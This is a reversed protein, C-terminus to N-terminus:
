VSIQRMGHGDKEILTFVIGYGGLYYTEYIAALHTKNLELLASYQFDSKTLVKSAQWSRGGDHSVHLVGNERRSQSAANLHYLVTGGDTALISGQCTPDPLDLAQHAGLFSEGGDESFAIIRYGGKNADRASLVIIDDSALAIDCENPDLSSEPAFASMRFHWPLRAGVRWTAGDDDSLLLSAGTDSSNAKQGCCWNYWGSVVLRGNSMRVGSGPGGSFMRVGAAALADTQEWHPGSWSAGAPDSRLFGSPAKALSHDGTVIHLIISGDAAKVVSGLNVGDYSSANSPDRFLWTINSWTRGHDQSRRMAVAKPGGDSCSHLRAEAFALIDGNDASTMVPIRYCSVPEPAGAGSGGFPFVAGSSDCGPAGPTLCCRQVAALSANHSCYCMGGTYSMTDSSLSDPSYCRWEKETGSAAADFRAFLQSSSCGAEASAQSCGTSPEECWSNMADDCGLAPPYPVAAVLPVALLRLFVM